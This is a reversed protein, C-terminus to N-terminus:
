PEGREYEVLAAKVAEVIHAPLYSDSSFPNSGELEQLVARLAKVAAQERRFTWKYYSGLAQKM